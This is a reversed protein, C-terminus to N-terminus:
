ASLVSSLGMVFGISLDIGGTIIVYTEAASLLLVITSLHIINQFNTVSLFGRGTFSFIGVMFLLFFLAWNKAFVSLARSRRNRFELSVANTSNVGKSWAGHDGSRAFGETKGAITGYEPLYAVL